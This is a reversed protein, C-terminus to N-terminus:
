HVDKICSSYVRCNPLPYILQTAWKDAKTSATCNPGGEGLNRETNRKTLERSIYYVGISVGVGILVDKVIKKM